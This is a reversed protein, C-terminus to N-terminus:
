AIVTQALETDFNTLAEVSDQLTSITLELMENLEALAEDSLSVRNSIQFDVLEVLNEVHDGVREIDGVVGALVSHKESDTPSLPKESLLVL